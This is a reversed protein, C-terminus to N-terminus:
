YFKDNKVYMQINKILFLEKIIESLRFFYHFPVDLLIIVKIYIDM